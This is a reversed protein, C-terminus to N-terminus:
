RSFSSSKLRKLMDRMKANADQKGSGVADLAKEVVEKPLPKPVLSDITEVSMLGISDDTQVKKKREINRFANYGLALLSANFVAITQFLARWMSDRDSSVVGHLIKEMQKGRKKDIEVVGDVLLDTGLEDPFDKEVWSRFKDVDKLVPTNYFAVLAPLMYIFVSWISYKRLELSKMIYEPWLKKLRSIDSSKMADFLKIKAANLSVMYVKGGDDDEKFQSRGNVTTAEIYANAYDIDSTVFLPKYFNPPDFKSIKGNNSGHFYIKSSDIESENTITRM